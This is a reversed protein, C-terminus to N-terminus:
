VPEQPERSTPGPPSLATVQMDPECWGVMLENDAAFQLLFQWFRPELGELARDVVVARVGRIELPRVLPSYSHRSAALAGGRNDDFVATLGALREAWDGPRFRRGAGTVGWIVAHPGTAPM